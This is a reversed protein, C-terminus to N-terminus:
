EVILLRREDHARGVWWDDDPSLRHADRLAQYADDVRARWAKWDSVGALRTELRAIASSPTHGESTPFLAGASGLYRQMEVAGIDGDATLEGQVL